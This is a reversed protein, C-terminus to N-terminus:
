IWLVKPEVSTYFHSVISYAEGFEGFWLPIDVISADDNLRCKVELLWDLEDPIGEDDPIDDRHIPGDNVHFITVKTLGMDLMRDELEQEIEAEKDLLYEESCKRLSWNSLWDLAYGLRFFFADKM